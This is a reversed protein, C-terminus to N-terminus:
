FLFYHLRSHSQLIINKLRIKPILAIIKNYFSFSFARRNTILLFDIPVRMSNFHVPIITFFFFVLIDYNSRENKIFDVESKWSAGFPPNTM